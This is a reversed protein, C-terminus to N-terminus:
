RAETLHIHLQTVVVLRMCALSRCVNLVLNRAPPMSTWFQAMGAMTGNACTGQPASIGSLGLLSTTCVCRHRRLSSLRPIELMQWSSFMLYLQSTQKMTSMYGGEDQSEMTVTEGLNFTGLVSALKKINNKSKMIAERKPLSSTISIDYEIVAEGARRMREHDKASIGQYKDIVLVKKTREPYDDLRDQMSAILDSPTGDHPWVIHYLLQSVDVVLTEASKSSIETVGLRHVIDANRKQSSM